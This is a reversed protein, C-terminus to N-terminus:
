HWPVLWREGRAIYVRGELRGHIVFGLDLDLSECFVFGLDVDPYLWWWSAEGGLWWRLWAEGCCGEVAATV